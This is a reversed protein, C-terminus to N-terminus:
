GEAEQGEVDEGGIGKGEENSVSRQEQYQCIGEAEKIEKLFNRLQSDKKGKDM